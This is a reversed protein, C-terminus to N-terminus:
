QCTIYLGNAGSDITSTKSHKLSAADANLYVDERQHFGGEIIVEDINEATVPVPDLELYPVQFSGDNVEQDINELKKGKALQVAYEAAIRAEEEIDKFATMYQTGEVIRQCAAVDCDQGVVIVKGALQNQALTQVVQSAIDDNGCMIGKVNPYKIRQCAAVDCDQGVVIVKGALQNQALTQVVQSAIDDNGCMIGKVNPYKKLGEEVYQEAQEALWGECNATYVVQLNSDKLAAEFGEKVLYINDDDPSGQIMFVDGGEPIAEKLANAMLEGVMRNDFSLYLDSNGDYVLRDYSIVPIGEDKAEQLVEALANCDRAIVVLVDMDKQILYRIQSIQEEPDAGADQVNVEAGLERATAVFADRDRIWREIVFSDVALGIQLKDEQEAEIGESKDTRSGRNGTSFCGCLGLIVCLLLGLLWSKNRNKMKNWGKESNM